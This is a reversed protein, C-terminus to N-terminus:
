ERLWKKSLDLSGLSGGIQIINGTKVRSGSINVQQSLGAVSTKKAQNLLQQITRAFTSDEELKEELVIQLATQYRKSKPKDELRKFTQYAYPDDMLYTQVTSYITKMKEVTTNDVSQHTNTLYPLLLEILTTAVEEPNISREEKSQNRSKEDADFLKRKHKVGTTEQNLLRTIEPSYEAIRYLPMALVTDRMTGIRSKGAEIQIAVVGNLQESYVAGGSFGEEALEQSRLRFLRYSPSNQRDVVGVFEGVGTAPDPLSTGYGYLRFTGEVSEASSIPLPQRGQPIETLKLLAFDVGMEKQFRWQVKYAQRPADNSFRVQIKDYVNECSESNDDKKCLVHGATLLHGEQSILWATAVTQDDILVACTAQSLLDDVSLNITKIMKSRTQPVMGHDLKTRYITARHFNQTQDLFTGWRLDLM